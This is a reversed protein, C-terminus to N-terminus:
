LRNFYYPVPPPLPSAVAGPLRDSETMYLKLAFDINMPKVFKKSWDPSAAYKLGAFPKFYAFALSRYSGMLARHDAESSVFKCDSVDRNGYERSVQTRM